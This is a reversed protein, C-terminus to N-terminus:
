VFLRMCLLVCTKTLSNHSSLTRQLFFFIFNTEIKHNILSECYRRVCSWLEFNIYSSETRSTLPRIYYLEHKTAQFEYSSRAVNCFFLFYIEITDTGTIISHKGWLYLYLTFSLIQLSTSLYWHLTAYAHSKSCPVGILHVIHYM